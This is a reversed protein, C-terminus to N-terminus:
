HQLLFCLQLDRGLKCLSDTIELLTFNMCYKLTLFQKLMNYGTAIITVITILFSTLIPQLLLFYPFLAFGSGLILM